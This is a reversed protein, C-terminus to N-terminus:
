AWVRAPQAPNVTYPALGAPAGGNLLRLNVHFRQDIVAPTTEVGTQPDLVAPTTVVPGIVDLAHTHSATLWQGDLRYAALANSAEEKDAFRLMLDIM